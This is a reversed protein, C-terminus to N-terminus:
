AGGHLPDSALVFKALLALDLSPLVESVAVQEYDEGHLHHVEFQNQQFFWVERVGPEGYVRLKQISGGTIVVEIAL